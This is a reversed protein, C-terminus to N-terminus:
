EFGRSRPARRLVRARRRRARSVFPDPEGLRGSELSQGPLPDVGRDLAVVHPDPAPDRGRARIRSVAVLDEGDGPFPASPAQRFGRRVVRRCRRSASVGFAAARAGDGLPRITQAREEDRAVGGRRSATARSRPISSTRASTRGVALGGENRLELQRWRTAITPSPQSRRAQARERPNPM